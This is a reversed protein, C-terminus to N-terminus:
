YTRYLPSAGFDSRYGPHTLNAKVCQTMNIKGNVVYPMRGSKFVAVYGFTSGGSVIKEDCKALLENEVLQLTAQDMGQTENFAILKYHNEERFKDVLRGKAAM